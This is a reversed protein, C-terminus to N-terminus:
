ASWGWWVGYVLDTRPKVFKCTATDGNLELPYRKEGFPLTLMNDTYTGWVHTPYPGTRFVVAFTLSAPRWDRPYAYILCPM